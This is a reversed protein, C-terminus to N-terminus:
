EGKVWQASRKEAAPREIADYAAQAREVFRARLADDDGGAILGKRKPANEMIKAYAADAKQVEAMYEDQAEQSVRGGDGLFFETKM